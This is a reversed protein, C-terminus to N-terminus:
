NRLIMEVDDDYDDDNMMLLMVMKLRKNEHEARTGGVNSRRQRKMLQRSQSQVQVCHRLLTFPEDRSM